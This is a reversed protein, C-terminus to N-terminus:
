QPLKRVRNERRLTSKEGSKKNQSKIYTVTQVRSFPPHPGHRGGPRDEGLRSLVHGLRGRETVVTQLPGTRGSETGQRKAQARWRSEVSGLAREIRGTRESSLPRASARALIRQRHM